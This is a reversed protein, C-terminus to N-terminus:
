GLVQWAFSTSSTTSAVKNLRVRIRGTTASPTVAAIYVGSRYSTLTAFALPTGSLGGPVAVDVYTAGAPISARGSRSFVVKGAAQLAVGSTSSAYVGTGTPSHGMVGTNARPAPPPFAHSGSTGIVGTGFNGTAGDSDWAYGRVGAGTGANTQGWLGSGGATSLNWGFVGRGLSSHTLGAVGYNELNGGTDTAEGWVGVGAKAASTAFVGLAPSGVPSTNMARVAVGDPTTIEGHVASGTTAMYGSVAKGGTVYSNGRVAYQTTGLAAGFVGAFADSDAQGYVGSSNSATTTATLATTTSSSFSGEVGLATGPKALAATVGAATAAVASALVTRRTRKQADEGM